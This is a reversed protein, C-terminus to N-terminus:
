SSKKSKHNKSDNEFLEPQVVHNVVVRTDINSKVEVDDEHFYHIAMSYVEDDTFGNSGSEKVTNLIYSVCDDINKNEKALCKALFPDTFARERLGKEITKKFQETSKM